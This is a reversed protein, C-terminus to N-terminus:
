DQRLATAPDVRLARLAPLVHAAAAVLALMLVSSALARPDTASVDFLLTAMLRTAGAAAALGAAIGIAVAIGGEAAVLRLVHLPTAGLAMRVGFERTRESVTLAAVGYLGLAALFLATGAFAALLRMVYRREGVSGAVLEEMMAVSYLPVTPDLRHLVDRVAPTLAAPDTASRITLVLFSDTVQAQPLYMQLTPAAALSTHRVDGAVGVITRWPPQTADGIRVRQGIPSSGPWLTRATTEGVVIVPLSDARDADTFRRGGKLPIRLTRFYDPTVSYREVSPDEAPNAAMLGEIHFGWSDGNGGLPIQGALAASEVGPLRRVGEVARDIFQVVAPDERYAEGVLSFQVTLVGRPDFGPDVRLLREVTRLMLGAGALLMLALAVDCIVLVQRARSASGVSGRSDLALAARLGGRSTRLAPVLGFLIGTALSIVFGFLLVEGDIGIGGVRPLSSPAISVFARTLISASAVGCVGGALGLCVSETLLQRILRRRDAGLAGRVAMERARTTARALTLNAVNACAILLVLGVAGVLVYLGREATGTLASSLPEVAVDAVGYETPYAAALQARVANLEARAQGPAVRLRGIARLHQCSRCAYPLTGDYGLPAWLEAPQYFRASVLPEFSSPMVGVIEYRVDNMTVARGIVNPDAGFRRRWLGDSLVLVHWRDPRDEAVTFGRGLAPAVGLTSFYAASVRMAPVREAEGDIVLTPAWSRFAAMSEFSASRDRFDQYTLFGITGPQGDRGGDAFVVLRDADPYPLPRLLVAHVVSFMATNAGIGLALTVLAAATFGPSRCFTRLAYSVDQVLTDVFPLRRQDRYAEAIQTKGGLRLRAGRRAEEASAGGRRLQEELMDAHFTLEDDLDDEKRRRFTGAARALWERLASM